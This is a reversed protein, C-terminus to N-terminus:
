AVRVREQATEHAETAPESTAICFTGSVREDVGHTPAVRCQVAGRKTRLSFTEPEGNLAAVHAELVPLNAGELGFVEILERGECWNPTRGLAEAAALSVTRLRLSADTSWFFVSRGPEDDWFVEVDTEPNPKPPAWWPESDTIGILEWQRM